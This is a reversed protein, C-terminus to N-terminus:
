SKRTIHTSISNRWWWLRTLGASYCMTNPKLDLSDNRANSRLINVASYAFAYTTYNKKEVKSKTRFTAVGVAGDHREAMQNEQYLGPTNVRVYRGQLSAPAHLLLEKNLKVKLFGADWIYSPRVAVRWINCKIYKKEVFTPVSYKLCAACEGNKEEFHRKNWLAVKKPEHIIWM